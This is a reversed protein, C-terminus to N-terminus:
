DKRSLMDLNPLDYVYFLPLTTIFNYFLLYTTSIWKGARHLQIACLMWLGGRRPDRAPARPEMEEAHAVMALRKSNPHM